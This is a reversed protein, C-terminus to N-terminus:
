RVAASRRRRPTRPVPTLPGIFALLQPVRTQVEAVVETIAPFCADNARRAAALEADTIRIPTREATVMAVPPTEFLRLHYERDSQRQLATIAQEKLQEVSWARRHADREELDYEYFPAATIAMGRAAQANTQRIRSRAGGVSSTFGAASRSARTTTDATTLLNGDPDTVVAIAAGSDQGSDEHFGEQWHDSEVEGTVRGKSRTASVTPVLRVREKPMLFPARMTEIIRDEGFGTWLEPALVEADARSVHFVLRIRPNSMMSQYVHLGERALQDLHQWAAVLYVGYGRLLDLVTEFDKNNSVFRGFEDCIVICPRRDPGHQRAAAAEIIRHIIAKGTFTALTDSFRPGGGLKFIAAGGHDMLRVFDITTQRQGTLAITIPNWLVEKARTRVVNLIKAREPISFSAEFERWVAILHPDGIAALVANRFRPDPLSTFPYLESATLGARVLPLIAAKGHESWWPHYEEGMDFFLELAELAREARTAPCTDGILEFLNFGPLRDSAHPDVLLVRQPVLGRSAAYAFSDDAFTDRLTGGKGDLFIASWNAHAVCDLAARAIQYLPGWSKGYGSGGTIATHSRAFVSLPVVVEEGTDKRTGLNVVGWQKARTLKKALVAKREARTLHGYRQRLAHGNVPVSETRPVDLLKLDLRRRKERPLEEPPRVSPIRDLNNAM